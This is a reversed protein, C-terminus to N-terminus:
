LDDFDDDYQVMEALHLMKSKLLQKEQEDELTQKAMALTHKEIYAQNKTRKQKQGFFDGYEEVVYKQIDIDRKQQAQGM